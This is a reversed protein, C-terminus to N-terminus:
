AIPLLKGLVLAKSDEPQCPRPPYRSLTNRLSLFLIQNWVDLFLPLCKRPSLGSEQFLLGQSEEKRGQGDQILPSLWQGSSDQCHHKNM